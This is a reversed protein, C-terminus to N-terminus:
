RCLVKTGRQDEADRHDADSEEIRLFGDRLQDLGTPLGSTVRRRDRWVMLVVSRERLLSTSLM